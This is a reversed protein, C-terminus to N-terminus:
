RAKSTVGGGLVYFVELTARLESPLTMIARDTEEAECDVTPIRAEQYDSRDDGLVMTLNVSAYGLGRAGAGLKWRAWNQLRRETDADRAM